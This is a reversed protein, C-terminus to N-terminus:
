NSLSFTISVNVVVEVPQGNLLTPSFRWQRVADVAAVAFDPHAQASLVRVSGVTGDRRIIAEIPVVGERGAARMAEPYLPRVDVEKRPPRVNGGIRVAQATGAPAAPGPAVRTASVHITEHLDGIQLTIVRDWDRPNRM